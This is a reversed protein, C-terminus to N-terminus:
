MVRLGNVLTLLIASFANLLSYINRNNKQSM